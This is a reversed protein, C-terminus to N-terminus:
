LYTYIYNFLLDIIRGYLFYTLLLCIINSETYFFFLFNKNKSNRIINRCRYMPTSWKEHFRNEQCQFIEFGRWNLCTYYLHTKNLEISIENNDIMSCDRIIVCRNVQKRYNDYTYINYRYKQITRFFFLFNNSKQLISQVTYIHQYVSM